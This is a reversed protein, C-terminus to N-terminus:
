NLGVNDGERIEELTGVLSGDRRGAEVRGETLVVTRGDNVDGGVTLGV